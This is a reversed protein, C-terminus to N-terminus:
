YASEYLALLEPRAVPRPNFGATWQGAAEAALEGLSERPVEWERLRQPLGALGCLEGVRAAFGSGDGRHLEGYLAAVASANFRVVHPLMLGVAAGHPVAFRATLPNACAHAAGLMSREVAAGALHAALLM